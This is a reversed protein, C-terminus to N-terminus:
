LHLGFSLTGTVAGGVSDGDRQYIQEAERVQSIEPPPTTAPRDLFMMEASVNFGVSVYKNFYYDMGYGARANFGTIDVVASWDRTSLPSFNGTMSYGGGFLFHSELRGMPLHFGLVGDFSWLNFDSLTAMRVQAGLSLFILRVGAAAGVLMGAENTSVAQADVLDNASFTQLGLYTGGIEADMWLWELGRGSDEKESELLEDEYSADDPEGEPPRLGGSQFDDMAASAAGPQTLLALTGFGLGVFWSAFRSM